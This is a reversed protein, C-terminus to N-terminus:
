SLVPLHLDRAQLYYTVLSDQLQGPVMAEIFYTVGGPVQAPM